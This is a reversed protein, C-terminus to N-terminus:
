AASACHFPAPDPARGRFDNGDGFGFHHIAGYSFDCTVPSDLHLLLIM